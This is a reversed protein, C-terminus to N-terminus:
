VNVVMYNRGKKRYYVGKYTYYKKGSYVAIKYGVPLKRVMIGAPATCVVYKRGRTKYWVGKSFHFDVGKHVVLQPQYLTTVVTGQRPYVKVTRQATVVSTTGVILITIALLRLSKM